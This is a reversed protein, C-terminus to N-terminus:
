HLALGLEYMWEDILLFTTEDAANDAVAGILDTDLTCEGTQDIGDNHGVIHKPVISHMLGM